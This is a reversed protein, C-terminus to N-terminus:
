GTVEEKGELWLRFERRFHKLMADGGEGYQVVAEKEDLLQLLLDAMRRLKPRSPRISACFRRFQEGEETPTEERHTSLTITQGLTETSGPSSPADLSEVPAGGLELPEVLAEWKAANRMVARFYARLRSTPVDFWARGGFITAILADRQDAPLDGHFIQKVYHAAVTIREAEEGEDHVQRYQEPHERARTPYTLAALWPLIKGELEEVRSVHALFTGEGQHDRLPLELDYVVEGTRSPHPSTPLLSLDLLRIADLSRRWRAARWARYEKMARREREESEKQIELRRQGTVLPIWSPQRGPYFSEFVSIPVRDASGM